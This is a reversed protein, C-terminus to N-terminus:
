DINEIGYEQAHALFSEKLSGYRKGDAIITEMADHSLVNEQTDNDTDFVNHKMDDDGGENENDKDELAQGIM